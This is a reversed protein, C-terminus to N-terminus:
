IQGKLFTQVKKEFKCRDQIVKTLKMTYVEYKSMLMVQALVKYVNFIFTTDSTM